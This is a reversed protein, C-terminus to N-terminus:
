SSSAQNSHRRGQKITPWTEDRWRAIAADDRQRARRAPQQLTWRRARCVRGSPALPSAVGCTLRMVAAIRGRTWREGRFGDAAPGQQLRTPLYTRPADTLRAPAGPPPRHRRADAGGDGARTMWPSVAGASVGLAEAIRRRAWGQQTLHWAQLRRAARWPRPTANMCPLLAGVGRASSINIRPDTLQKGFNDATERLSFAIVCFM